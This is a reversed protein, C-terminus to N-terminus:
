RDEGDDHTAPAPAPAHGEDGLGAAILESLKEVAEKADAGKAVLVVKDGRGVELAMLSTISRANAFRDGLQLRVESQFSKAISALVASPRAHLGTANPVLIADSTVTGGSSM